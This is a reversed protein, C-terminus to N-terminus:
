RGVSALDLIVTERAGLPHHAQYRQEAEVNGRHYFSAVLENTKADRLEYRPLALSVRDRMRQRRTVVGGGRRAPRPDRGVPLVHRRRVLRALAGGSAPTFLKVACRDASYLPIGGETRWRHLCRRVTLSVGVLCREGTWRDSGSLANWLPEVSLRPQRAASM